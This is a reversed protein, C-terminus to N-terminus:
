QRKGLLTFSGGSNTTLFYWVRYGEWTVNVVPTLNNDSLNVSPEVYEVDFVNNPDYMAFGVVGNGGPNGATNGGAGGGGSNNYGMNENNPGSSRSNAFPFSGSVDGTPAQLQGGGYATIFAGGSDSTGGNQVFYQYESPDHIWSGSVGCPYQDGCEPTASGSGPQADITVSDTTYVLQSGSAINSYSKGTLNENSGAGGQGITFTATTNHQFNLIGTQLEGAQGGKGGAAFTQGGWGGGVVIYHVPTLLNPGPENLRAEIRNVNLNIM